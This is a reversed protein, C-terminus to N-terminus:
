RRHRDFFAAMTQAVADPVEEALFHAGELAHGEVQEARERWLALADFCREIVGRSGWIVQLPMTLKAGGDAEDHAIDISAAARYDECMAHITAPDHFYRLYEALADPHFIESGRTLATCKFRWYAEPDAGIMREPQPAPLILFFWHWYAKAFEADTHAYMERTPAIDLLTVARTRAPHDIAFRHAVRAGRDHGCLWTEEHGFHNLLNGMDTAMARKSYPSHEADTPPKDSGGYGRLDPCIVHYNESFHPALAHWMASTQPYGHLLLLAPRDVAGNHRVRLSVTGCAIQEEHFGDFGQM